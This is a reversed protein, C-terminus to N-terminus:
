VHASGRAGDAAGTSAGGGGGRWAGLETHADMVQDQLESIEAHLAKTAAKHSEALEAQSQVSVYCSSCLACHHVEDNAAMPAAANKGHMPHSALLRMHGLEDSCDANATDFRKRFDKGKQEGALLYLQALM